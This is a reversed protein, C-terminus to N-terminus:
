TCTTATKWHLVVSFRSTKKKKGVRFNNGNNQIVTEQKRFFNSDDYIYKPFYTNYVDRIGTDSIYFIFRVLSLYPIFSSSLWLKTLRSVIVSRFM